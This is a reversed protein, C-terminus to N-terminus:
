GPARRTTSLNFMSPNTATPTGNASTMRSVLTTAHTARDHLWVTAKGPDARGSGDTPREAYAVFRGDASISPDFAFGRGSIQEVTGAQVDRVWIRSRHGDAGLNGAASTFAVYRGDSSISPEYADDVGAIADAIRRAIEHGAPDQEAAHRALPEEVFDPEVVRRDHARATPGDSGREDAEGVVAIDGV